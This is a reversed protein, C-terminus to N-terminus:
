VKKLNDMMLEVMLGLIYVKDVLNTRKGNEKMLLEMLGHIIEMVM